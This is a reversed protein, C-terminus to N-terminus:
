DPLFVKKYEERQYLYDLAEAGDVVHRIIINFSSNKFHNIILRADAPNDEVLLIDVPNLYDM